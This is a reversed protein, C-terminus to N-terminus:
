ATGGLVASRGTGPTGDRRVGQGRCVDVAIGLLPIFFLRGFLLRWFARGSCRWVVTAADFVTIQQLTQLVQVSV